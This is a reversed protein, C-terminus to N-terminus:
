LMFCVMHTHTSAHRQAHLHHFLCWAAARRAERFLVSVRDEVHIICFVKNDDSKLVDESKYCCIDTPCSTTLTVTMSQHSQQCTCGSVTDILWGFSYKWRLRSCWWPLTDPGRWEVPLMGCCVWTFVSSTPSSTVSESMISSMEMSAAVLQILVKSPLPSSFTGALQQCTYRQQGCLRLLQYKNNRQIALKRADHATYVYMFYM